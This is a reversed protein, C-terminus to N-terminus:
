AQIKEETV